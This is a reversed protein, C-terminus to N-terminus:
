KWKISCGMSPQSEPMESGNVLAWLATRMEDGSPQVGNGPTSADLRGRYMLTDEADFVFFDPTCVAGYAKAIDQSADYLYPFPYSAEAMKEPSDDSYAEADNSSVGVFGVGLPMFEEALQRLTMNIHHVFPCHNCIFAVVTGHNGRADALTIQEEFRPYFLKFDPATFATNTPSSHLLVM